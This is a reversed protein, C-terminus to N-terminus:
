VPDAGEAPSHMPEPPDYAAFDIEQEKGLPFNLISLSISDPDPIIEDRCPTPNPLERLKDGHFNAGQAGGINYQITGTFKTDRPSLSRVYWVMQSSGSSNRLM